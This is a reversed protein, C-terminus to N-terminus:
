LGNWDRAVPVWNNAGPGYFFSIDADGINQNSGIGSPNTATSQGGFWVYVRGWYGVHDPPLNPRGDYWPDGILIDNFGDGNIHGGSGVASSFEIDSFSLGAPDEVAWAYDPEVM